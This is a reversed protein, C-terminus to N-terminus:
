SEMQWKPPEANHLMQQPQPTICRQKCTCLTHKCELEALKIIQAADAFGCAQSSSQPLHKHSNLTPVQAATDSRLKSMEANLRAVEEELVEKRQKYDLVAALQEKVQTLETRSEEIRREADAAARAKAEASAQKAAAVQSAAAAHM